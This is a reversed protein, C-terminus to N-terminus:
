TMEFVRSNPLGYQTMEGNYGGHTIMMVGDKSLWLDTEIGDVMNEKCGSFAQM